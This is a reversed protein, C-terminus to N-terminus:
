RSGATAMQAGSSVHVPWMRAAVVAAAAALVTSTVAAWAQGAAAGLWGAIPYTLLFCAHSLSFQATFVATRTGSDSQARL